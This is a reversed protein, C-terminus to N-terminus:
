IGTLRVGIARRGYRQNLGIILAALRELTAAEVLGGADLARLGIAEALAVGVMPLVFALANNLSGFVSIYTPRRDAPTVELLMNYHSLLAGKPQATTGSTYFLLCVDDGRGHEVLEEFLRSKGVGPAGVITVLGPAHGGVVDDLVNQLAAFEGHRGVLPARLGGRRSAPESRLSVFEWGPVLETKGKLALPACERFEALWQTHRYTRDGVMTTSPTAASRLRAAVNVADGTVMFEGKHVADPNAVVEGTNIGIRMQLGSAGSLRLDVNLDALRHHMAAAARIAREPDDEHAAPLGFVAMIEDGIFKEVTGGFRHVIEAMVQFFRGMIARVREPDLREGLSTSGTVDAFLITVIKREESTAPTTATSLASLRAGCNGCFAFGAPNEFGCQPCNM